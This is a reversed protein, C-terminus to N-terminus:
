WFTLIRVKDDVTVKQTPVVDMDVDEDGSPIEDLAVDEDEEEDPKRATDPIDEDAVHGDTWAKRIKDKDEERLEEFGDLEDAEDFSKRM